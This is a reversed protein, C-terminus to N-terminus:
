AAEELGLDNIKEPAIKMTLRVDGPQRFPYTDESPLSTAGRGRRYDSQVISSSRPLRFVVAMWILNKAFESGAGGPTISCSSRSL